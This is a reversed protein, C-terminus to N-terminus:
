SEPYVAAITCGGRGERAAATRSLQAPGREATGPIGFDDRAIAKDGAHGCIMGIGVGSEFEVNDAWELEPCSSSLLVRYSSNGGARRKSTQVIIENGDLQWGRVAAPSFCYDTDGRFGARQKAAKATVEVPELATDGEKMVFFERQDAAAALGAYTRGDIRTVSIVPCLMDAVKVFEKEAGCAWGETALLEAPQKADCGSAHAVVFRGNGAAVVLTNEDIARVREIARADLCADSPAPARAAALLPVFVVALALCRAQM